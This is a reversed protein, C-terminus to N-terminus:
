QLRSVQLRSVQLSSLERQLGRLQLGQLPQLPLALALGRRRQQQWRHVLPPRV